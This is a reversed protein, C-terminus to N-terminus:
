TQGDIGALIWQRLNGCLHLILNGVSNSSENPRWWLQENDLLEVCRSLQPLFDQRLHHVAQQAFHSSLDSSMPEGQQVRDYVISGTGMPPAQNWYKGARLRRQVGILDTHSRIREAEKRLAGRRTGFRNGNRAACRQNWNGPCFWPGVGAFDTRRRLAAFFRGAPRFIGLHAVRLIRNKLPGQGGAVQLGFRQDLRPILRGADIGPPPYVATLANAPSDSVLEFGLATLGARTARAMLASEALVQSPGQDLIARTSAHLASVLSVAPTFSTQGRRQKQAEAVLNFYFRGTTKLKMQQLARPSLSMFALGPSMGFSKQSAGIVIDLGWADTALRQCGLASIADVILLVEPFERGVRKAIAELDHVTGTSTECAQILLAKPVPRRNLERCIDEPQAAQGWPKEM